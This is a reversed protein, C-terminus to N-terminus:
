GKCRNKRRGLGTTKKVGNGTMEHEAGGHVNGIAFLGGDNCGQTGDDGGVGKTSKFDAVDMTIMFKLADTRIHRRNVHFNHGGVTMNPFDFPGVSRDLLSRVRAQM